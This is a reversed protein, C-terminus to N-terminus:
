LQPQYVAVIIVSQNSIVQILCLREFSVEVARYTLDSNEKYIFGVGRHPRGSTIQEPDVSSKLHTWWNKAACLTKVHPLESPRVWHESLFCIDYKRYLKHIFAASSKFGFCNFSVYSIQKSKM